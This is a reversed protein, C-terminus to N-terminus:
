FLRCRRVLRRPRRPMRWRIVLSEFIAVQTKNRVTSEAPAAREKQRCIQVILCSSIAASTFRYPIMSEERALPGGGDYAVVDYFAWLATM